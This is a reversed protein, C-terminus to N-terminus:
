DIKSVQKENKLSTYYNDFVEPIRDILVFPKGTMGVMEGPAAAQVRESRQAIFIRERM